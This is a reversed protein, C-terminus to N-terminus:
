PLCSLNPTYCIPSAKIFLELRHTETLSLMRWGIISNLIYSNAISKYPSYALKAYLNLVYLLSQGTANVAKSGLSRWVKMPAFDVWFISVKCSRRGRRSHPTGVHVCNAALARSRCFLRRQKVNVRKDPGSAPHTTMSSM